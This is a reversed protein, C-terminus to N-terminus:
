MQVPVDVLRHERQLNDTIILTIPLPSVADATYHVLWVDNKQRTFVKPQADSAETFEVKVEKIRFGPKTIRYMFTNREQTKGVKPKRMYDTIAATYANPLKLAKARQQYYAKKEANLLTIQAWEAAKRFTSRTNRQAESEKKKVPRRAPPSAFTKGRMTRFVVDNGFKGRFGKILPNTTTTAMVTNNKYWTYSGARGVM